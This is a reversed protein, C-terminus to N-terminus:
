YCIIFSTQGGVFLDLLLTICFLLDPKGSRLHEWIAEIAM